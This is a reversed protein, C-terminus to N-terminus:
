VDLPETRIGDDLLKRKFYFPTLGNKKVQYTKLMNDNMRFGKNLVVEISSNDLVQKYQQLVLKNSKQVGKCSFKNKNHKEDSHCYYVKSTLAIVAGKSTEWEIKFLGPVRRDYKKVEENYDRPFWDYKENEWIEKMKPKILDEFKGTLAMYNSDTDMEILEFDSRDVFKDLCDYYFELMRLKALNYVAVSIQLPLTQRVKRKSQEIEFLTKEDVKIENLDRFLHSNVKDKAKYICDYYNVSTHKNKNMGTRGFASNGILKMMEAILKKSEDADGRRRADSVKQTFEKFVDNPQCEIFRHIKSVVLGHKVYWKLLPSYILIKDGVFSQILKKNKDLKKNHKKLLDKQYKSLHKEQIVFNKFIPPFESFHKKLHKPTHIDVEVFGFKKNNEIDSLFTKIDDLGENNFKLEGCPMNQSLCWLYLANADFGALHKCLKKLNGRIFTKNIEHYRTYVISAGGVISDKLKYFCEKNEENIIKPLPYHKAFDNLKKMSKFKHYNMNKKSVNCHLCCSVVNRNTHGFSSNIRDLTFNSKNLKNKCYHCRFCDKKIQHQIKKVCLSTKMKSVKNEMIEDLDKTKKEDVNKGQKLTKIVNKIKKILQKDQLEYNVFKKNLFWEDLLEENKHTENFKIEYNNEAYKKYASQFMIKEALGPISLGDQFMDLNFNKSYFNRQKEIAEVFPIVDLNNYWVLFDKFKKMNNDKWVKQCYEYEENTINKNKLSSHFQDHTPLRTDQLKKVDDLYEYPFFGKNLKCEYTKVYKEYSTGPSLYNTIDLVNFFQNRIGMYKNNKKATFQIKDKYLQSMFGYKKNLNNDYSGNNYGVLPICQIYDDFKKFMKDGLLQKFDDYNSVKNPSLRNVLLAENFFSTYKEKLNEYAKKQIEKLHTFFAENMKYPSNEYDDVVFCKAKNFGDVNSNVSVSIPIHENTFSLKEKKILKKPLMAEYDYVIFYPLVCDKEFDFKLGKDTFLQKLFNEKPRYLLSDKNFVDKVIVECTKIHRTLQKGSIFIKSCKECKFKHCLKNFDKVYMCHNKHKLYYVNEFDKKIIPPRRCIFVENEDDFNVLHINLKFKEEVQNLEKDLQVGEFSKDYKKEYFEQYLQKSKMIYKDKTAGKTMAVCSFLCLNNDKLKSFVNIFKSKLIHQPLSQLRGLAYNLSFIKVRIQNVCIVGEYNNKALIISFMKKDMTIKKIDDIESILKPDLFLKTNDGATLKKIPSEKKADYDRKYVYGGLEIQIKFSNKQERAIQNLGDYVDKIEKINNIYYMKQILTRGKQINKFKQRNIKIDNNIEKLVEIETPISFHLCNSIYFNVNNKYDLRIKLTKDIENFIYDYNKAYRGRLPEITIKEWEKKVVEKIFKDFNSYGKWDSRKKKIDYKKLEEKKRKFDWTKFDGKFKALRPNPQFKRKKDYIKNLKQVLWKKNFAYQGRVKNKGKKTLVDNYLSNLQKKDFKFLENKSYIKVKKDNKKVKKEDNKKDRAMDKNISFLLNNKKNNQQHRM